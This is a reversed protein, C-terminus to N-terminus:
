KGSASAPPCTLFPSVAHHAADGHLLLGGLVLSAGALAVRKPNLRLHVDATSRTVKVECLFIPTRTM